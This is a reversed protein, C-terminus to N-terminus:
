GPSLWEKTKKDFWMIWGDDKKHVFDFMDRSKRHRAGIEKGCDVCFAVYREEPAKITKLMSKPTIGMQLAIKKWKSKHNEDPGVIFHAIEHLIIETINKISNLL